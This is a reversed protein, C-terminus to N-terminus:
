EWLAAAALDGDVTGAQEHLEAASAYARSATVPAGTREARQGARALAALARERTEAADADDPMAVLADLLHGAIVESVEEGGDPFARALHAAVSLHRSKRERRSLTDYAVQRVLTQVFGYQGREPSLKDARVALVERHVLEGLLERVRQEPMGSVAVLAEVPFSGGLVAADAVLRRAEPELADLRAALLSQLSDPVALDRVDGVLRYSDGLPQVVGRDLLMRVTEVAYLPIGQAQGAIAREAAESLGPVLGELMAAMAAEDLPELALATGNRRDAGWGARREVLEPRALTLVFLSVGRAWDLLHELFDLLGPDAHQLDEVLLVVPSVSGLQEFFLRWGAFLEERGPPSPLASDVGLLRALRPRIYERAAGDVVWRELGADLKDGVVSVPDEEAIGLRARVMEALAWFAVGDGYSLCRGRHWYVTVALGDVHKEFEWGLRSKGVGAAGIISVLRPSRREVCSHFLEKVLRLESDRGVLPAELGDVRQSGGVGSVVRQARWLSLPSAKGKLLHEGAPVFAVASRALRWTAEDVLVAGPDAVSQVRAATNVTDGAIGEGAFGATIAVEGTVVGVRAALAPLGSTRGLEAVADTLDLAARVARETDGEAAVPAGWVAMVADGIFKEVTGGYREVVTKAAHFYSSLLGRVEEADRLESLTTFSVLDCFLVSCVRREAVGPGPLHRDPPQRDPPQRDPSQRDPSQRDPAGARQAGAGAPVQAQTLPVTAASPALSTGCEGCFRKAPNVPSGCGPCRTGLAQGCSECFRNSGTNDAGCAPCHM